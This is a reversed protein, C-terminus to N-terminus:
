YHSESAANGHVPADEVANAAARYIHIAGFRQAQVIRVLRLRVVELLAQFAAIVELRSQAGDFLEQFVFHESSELRDMLWAIRDTVSMAEVTVDYLSEEPIRALIEKLAEVLDFLSVECLAGDEGQGLPLEPLEGRTFSNLREIERQRLQEAAEKFRQYELLREVLELRPDAGFEEDLDDIEPSPLLMQSKIHTLTAAMVLFEGAIELNLDRLTELYDLYQKTIRAIPIDYIDVENERLLHILLDLPGEFFELKIEYAM